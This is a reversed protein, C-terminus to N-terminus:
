SFIDLLNRIDKVARVSWLFIFSHTPCPTIFMTSYLAYHLKKQRIFIFVMIHEYLWRFRDNRYHQFVNQDVDALEIM